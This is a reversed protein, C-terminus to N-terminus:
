IFLLQNEMEDATVNNLLSYLRRVVEYPSHRVAIVIGFHTRGSTYYEHALAEFDPRNHSLLTKSQSVAYALQEADGHGLQRADRATTVVFGKARLLKAVLVSVDEDLYLEGFLKNV